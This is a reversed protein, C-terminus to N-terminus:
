PRQSLSKKAAAGTLTQGSLIAGLLEVKDTASPIRAVAESPALMCRMGFVEGESLAPFAIEEGSSDYFKAWGRLGLQLVQESREMLPADKDERTLKEAQALARQVIDYERARLFRLRWITADPLAEGDEDRERKLVYDFTGNPDLAVAM